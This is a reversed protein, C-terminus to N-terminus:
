NQFLEDQSNSVKALYDSPTVGYYARFATSFYSPTSFGCSSAIDALSLEQKVVLSAAKEMRLRKILSSPSVGAEAQLKRNVHIRSIGMISAIKEVDFSPDSLNNEILGYVEKYFSSDENLVPPEESVPKKEPSTKKVPVSEEKRVPEPSVIPAPASIPKPMKTPEPKPAAIPEPSVEPSKLPKERNKTKFFLCLGAGLAFSLFAILILLWVAIGKSPPGTPSETEFEFTYPLLNSVNGTPLVTRWESLDGSPSVLCVAEKGLLWLGGDRSEAMEEVTIPLSCKLLPNEGPKWCYVEKTICSAWLKEGDYSFATVASPLNDQRVFGKTSSYSLLNGPADLIWIVGLSDAFVRRITDNPIRGGARNYQIRHGNRGIRFLGQGETGIWLSGDQKSVARTFSNATGTNAYLAFGSIVSLFLTLILLKAKNM